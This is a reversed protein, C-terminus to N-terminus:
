DDKIVRKKIFKAPNGAVISYSEVDKTVVSCAGIVAYRGINIGPLIFAKAGIFVNEEIKIHGIM